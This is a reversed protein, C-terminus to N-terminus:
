RRPGFREAGLFPEVAVDGTPAVRGGALGGPAVGEEVWRLL